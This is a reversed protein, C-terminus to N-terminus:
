ARRGQGVARAAGEPGRQRVRLQRGALDQRLSSITPDDAVSLFSPLVPKGLDKTFTQGEDDGRQRQGELRHGLVEHFFVAAARGSLLAPGDFPQTAPAKRLDELRQGMERVSQEMEAQSPLGGATEAQFTRTLELEMGDDARTAAIVVVGASLHPTVLRSGESSVYYNTGAQADFMVENQYVDPYDRFVLSLARM